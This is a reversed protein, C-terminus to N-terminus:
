FLHVIIAQKIPITEQDWMSLFMRDVHKRNMIRWGQPNYILDPGCMAKTVCLKINQRDEKSTITYDMLHWRKSVAQTHFHMTAYTDRANRDETLELSILLQDTLLM